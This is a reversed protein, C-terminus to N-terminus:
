KKLMLTLLTPMDGSVIASGLTALMRGNISSLDLKQIKGNRVKEICFNCIRSVHDSIRIHSPSHEDGCTSCTETIQEEIEEKSSFVKDCEQCIYKFGGNKNNVVVEIMGPSIGKSNIVMAPSQLLFISTCDLVITGGCKIHRM